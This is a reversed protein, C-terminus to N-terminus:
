DSRRQWNRSLHFLEIYSSLGEKTFDLLDASDVQGDGNVDGPLMVATPTASPTPSAVQGTPTNTPTHTPTATATHTSAATNTATSTPTATGVPTNTATNSPTGTAAATPTHSPTNTPTNTATRTPTATNTATPTRTPTASPTVTPTPTAVNAVQVAVIARNNAEDAEDVAGGSDVVAHVLVQEAPYPESTTDWVYQYEFTVGPVLLATQQRALVITTDAEIRLELDFPGAQSRGQNVVAATLLVQHEDFSTSTFEALVLDSLLIGLSAINNGREADEVAEQPDAVVYIRRANVSAPLTWEVSVTTTAGPVLEMNTSQAEGIAVGGQAPHGDYFVVDFAGVTFDGANVVEATITVSDGPAASPPHLRLAGEPLAPDAGLGRRMVMLDVQGFSTIEGTMAEGNVIVTTASRVLATKLYALVLRDGDIAISLASEVADDHTVQRPRSWRHAATDFRSIVIDVGSASQVTYAAAAGGPAGIAALNNATTEPGESAFMPQPAFGDLRAYHPRGGRSWVVYPVGGASVLRALGDEVEDNTLRVPALWSGGDTSFAYLEQDDSTEVLGDEDVVMVVHGEGAGDEAFAFELIGKGDTWLEQAADWGAGNWRAFMLRDPTAADGLYNAAANQIWLVGASNGYRVPRPNRDLLANDTLLAPLSWSSTARNYLAFRIETLPLEDEPEAGPQLEDVTHEWAALLRNDALNVGFPRYDLREDNSARSQTWAGQGAQRLMAADTPAHAPKAEDFLAFLINLEGDKASLSPASIPSVNALVLEEGANSTTVVRPAPGVGPLQYGEGYDLYDPGLWTWVLADPLMAGDAARALQLQGSSLLVWEAPFSYQISHIKYRGYLALNGQIALKTAKLLPILSIEPAVVASVNAGAEVVDFDAKGLGEFGLKGALAVDSAGLFSGPTWQGNQYVGSIENSAVLFLGMVVKQFVKGVYPAKAIRGVLAASPPYVAPILYVAPAEAGVKGGLGIKWGPSVTPNNCAAHGIDFTGGVGLSSENIVKLGPLVTEVGVELTFSGSGGIEGKFSGAKPDFGLAEAYAYSASSALSGSPDEVKYLQQSAQANYTSKGQICVWAIGSARTEPFFTYIFEPVPHFYVECRHTGKTGYGNSMEILMESCLSISAPVSVAIEARSADGSLPSLTPTYNQGNIVFVASRNEAHEGNDRWSILAKFRAQCPFGAVYHTGTPADFSFVVPEQGTEPRLRFAVSATQGDKIEVTRSDSHYGEKSATVTYVGVELGTFGFRGDATTVADEMTYTDVVKGFQAAGAAVHIAVGELPGRANGQSDLKIVVGNLNGRMPTMTPTSTSNPTCTLSNVACPTDTPTPTPSPEGTVASLYYIVNGPGQWAFDAGDEGRADVTVTGGDCVILKDREPGPITRAYIRRGAPDRDDLWAVVTAAISAGIEPLNVVADADCVFRNFGLLSGSRDVSQALARNAVTKWVAEIINNGRLALEPGALTSAADRNDALEYFTGRPMDQHAYGIGWGSWATEKHLWACHARGQSDVVVDPQKAILPPLTRHWSYYGDWLEAYVPNGAEDLPVITIGERYVTQGGYPNTPDDFQGQVHTEAAIVPRNAPDTSIAPWVYQASLLTLDFMRFAKVFDLQGDIVRAYTLFNQEGAAARQAVVHARGLGDVALRPSQFTSTSVKVPTVDFVNGAVIRAYWLHRSFDRWIVHARGLHDIAIDPTFGQEGPPSM